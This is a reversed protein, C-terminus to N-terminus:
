GEIIKMLLEEFSIGVAKAQQPLISKASMGPITNVEILYFENEKLIFDIRSVNRCRLIKFAKVWGTHPLHGGRCLDTFVDHDCFTITGDALNEILEVKFENGEATYKKLADAKSVARMSFPHKGKAIELAKQEITEFDKDSIVQGQPLDVDYYFGQDIAPGITLKVGPYLSELAQALIHASSHWFAKKGEKDNWTFLVLSGSATLPTSSEIIQGNFSASLVNRALGESISAAVDMPTAGPAYARVSSDPLTIEIM